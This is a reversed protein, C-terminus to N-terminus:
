YQSTPIPPPRFTFPEELTFDVRNGPKVDIKAAAFIAIVPAAVDAPNGTVVAGGVGSAGHKAEASGKAHVASEKKGPVDTQVGLREGNMILGVLELRVKASGHVHGGKKVDVLRIHAETGRPIVVHDQIMVSPDVTGTFLEGAKAHNSKIEDAVRIPIVTGSRLTVFTQDPPYQQVANTAAHTPYLGLSVALALPFFTISLFKARM